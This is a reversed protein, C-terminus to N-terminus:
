AEREPEDPTGLNQGADLNQLQASVRVRVRRTLMPCLDLRIREGRTGGDHCRELNAAEEVTTCRVDAKSGGGISAIRPRGAKKRPGCDERRRGSRM